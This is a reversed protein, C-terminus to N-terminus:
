SPIKFPNIDLLVTHGECLQCLSVSQLSLLAQFSLMIKIESLSTINKRASASMNETQLSLMQVFESLVKHPHLCMYFASYSTKFHRTM